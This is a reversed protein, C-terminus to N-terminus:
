RFVYFLFLSSVTACLLFVLTSLEWSEESVAKLDCDLVHEANDIERCVIKRPQEDMNDTAKRKCRSVEM